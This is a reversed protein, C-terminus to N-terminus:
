KKHKYKFAENGNSDIYNFYKEILNYSCKFIESIDNITKGDSRLTEWEECPPFLGHNTPTTM